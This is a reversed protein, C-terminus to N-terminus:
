PAVEAYSGAVGRMLFDRSATVMVCAPGNERSFLRHAGALCNGRVQVTSAPFLDRLAAEVGKLHHALRDEAAAVTVIPVAMSAGAATFGLARVLFNRRPVILHPDTM